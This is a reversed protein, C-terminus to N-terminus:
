AYRGWRFLFIFRPWPAAAAARVARPHEVTKKSNWRIRGEMVTRYFSSNPRLQFTGHWTHRTPIM